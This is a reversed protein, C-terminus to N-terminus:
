GVYERNGKKRKMLPQFTVFVSFLSASFCRRQQQFCDCVFRYSPINSSLVFYCEASQRKAINEDYISTHLQSRKLVM